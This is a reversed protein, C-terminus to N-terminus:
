KFFSWLTAVLSYGILTYGGDIVAMKIPYTTYIWGYATTTLAFFFALILGYKIAAAATSVNLWKLVLGIGASIIAVNLYGLVMGTAPAFNGVTNEDFGMLATMQQGFLVDYWVFGLAFFAVSTVLLGTLNLGFIRPM